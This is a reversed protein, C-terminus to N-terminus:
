KKSKKKQTKASEIRRKKAVAHNREGLEPNPKERGLIARSIKKKQRELDGM